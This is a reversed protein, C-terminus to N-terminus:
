TSGGTIIASCTNRGTEYTESVALQCCYVYFVDNTEEVSGLTYPTRDGCFGAIGATSNLPIWSDPCAAVGVPNSSYTCGTNDPTLQLCQKVSGDTSCYYSDSITTLGIHSSSAITATIALLAISLLLLLLPNRLAGSKKSQKAM